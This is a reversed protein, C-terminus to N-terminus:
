VKRMKRYENQKKVQDMTWSLMSNSVGRLLAQLITRDTSETALKKDAVDNPIDDALGWTKRKTCTVVWTVKTGYEHKVETRTWEFKSLEMLKLVEEIAIKLRDVENPM